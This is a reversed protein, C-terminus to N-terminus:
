ARHCRGHRGFRCSHSPEVISARCAQTQPAHFSARDHGHNHRHHRTRHGFHGNILRWCDRYHWFGLALVLKTSTHHPVGIAYSPLGVAGGPSPSMPLAGYLPPPTAPMQNNFVQAIPASPVPVTSFTQGGVGITMATYGQAAPPPAPATPVPVTPMALGCNGCFAAGNDIPQGCQPCNM